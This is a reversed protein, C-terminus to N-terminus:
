KSNTISIIIVLENEKRISCKRRGLAPIQSRIQLGANAYQYLRIHMKYKQKCNNLQMLINVNLTKYKIKNERKNKKNKIKKNKNKELRKTKTKELRKTKLKEFRKTKKRNKELRKTKREWNVESM